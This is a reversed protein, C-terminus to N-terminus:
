ASSELGSFAWVTEWNLWGPMMNPANVSKAWQSGAMSERTVM